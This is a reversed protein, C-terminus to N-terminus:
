DTSGTIPASEIFTTREPDVEVGGVRLRISFAARGQWETEVIEGVDLIPTSDIVAIGAEDLRGTTSPFDFGVSVAHALDHAADHTTARAQVRLVFEHDVALGRAIEEGAVADEDFEELPEGGGLAGVDAPGELRLEIAPLPRPAMKQRDWVVRDEALASSRVVEARLTTKLAARNM